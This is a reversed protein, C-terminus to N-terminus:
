GDRRGIDGGPREPDQGPPEPAIQAAPMNQRRSRMGEVGHPGDLTGGKLRFDEHCPLGTEGYWVLIEITIERRGVAAPERNRAENRSTAATNKRVTAVRNAPNRLFFNEPAVAPPGDM